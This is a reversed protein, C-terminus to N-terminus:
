ESCCSGLLPHIFVLGWAGFLFGVNAKAFTCFHEWRWDQVFLSRFVPSFHPLSCLLLSDALSPFVKSDWWKWWALGHLAAEVGKKFMKLCPSKAVERRPQELCKLFACLAQSPEVGALDM